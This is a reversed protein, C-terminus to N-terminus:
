AVNNDIESIIGLSIFNQVVGAVDESQVIMLINVIETAFGATFKM